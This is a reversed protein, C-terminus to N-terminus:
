LPQGASIERKWEELFAEMFAHRRVGEERASPLHLGHVLQLLKVYFHDVGHRCDDLTRESQGWPDQPHYHHNHSGPRALGQNCSFTRAIGCAGMADLRDADQLVKALPADPPMGGSWSCRCVAGVISAIEQADYGAQSLWPAAEQASLRSALPREPSDKPVNVLDHVLAAAGAADVDAGAEPDLRVAWEYVRFIHLRDHALDTEPVLPSVLSWLVSHRARCFIPDERASAPENVPTSRTAHAGGGIGQVDTPDANTPDQM